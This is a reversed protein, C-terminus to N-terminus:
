GVPSVVLLKEGPLVLKEFHKLNWTILQKAEAKLAAEYILADYIAGSRLQLSRVRVIAQHYDKKRLAVVEFHSQINQDIIKEVTTGSLAPVCPYATLVSYCEALTHSAIFKKERSQYLKQLLQVSPAHHPHSGISAAVFVSTDLLPM